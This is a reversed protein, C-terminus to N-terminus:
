ADFRVPAAQRRLYRPAPDLDGGARALAMAVRGVGVALFEEGAVCSTEASSLHESFRRAGGGAIRVALGEVARAFEEPLGVREQGLATPPAGPRYLGGYLEGRGADLLALVPPGGGACAALAQLTSVGLLPKAAGAALGRATGIGVRLGTLTGPGCSVAVADCAGLDLEAVALAQLALSLIRDASGGRPVSGISPSLARQTRDSSLGLLVVTRDEDLM